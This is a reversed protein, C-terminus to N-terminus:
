WTTNCSLTYLRLPTSRGRNQPYSILISYISVVAMKVTAINPLDKDELFHIESTNKVTPSEITEMGEDLEFSRERKM